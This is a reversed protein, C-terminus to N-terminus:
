HEIWDAYKGGTYDKAEGTQKPMPDGTRLVTILLGPSFRDADTLRATHYNIYEITIYEKQEVLGAVTIRHEGQKLEVDPNIGLEKLRELATKGRQSTSVKKRAIPPPCAAPLFTSSKVSEPRPKEADRRPKEASEVPESQITSLEAPLLLQSGGSTLLWGIGTETVLGANALSRLHRRTTEYDMDLLEAIQKAAVPRDIRILLLVIVATKKISRFAALEAPPLITTNVM